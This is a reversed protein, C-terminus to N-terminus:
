GEVVEADVVRPADRVLLGVGLLLPLAQDDEAGFSQNLSLLALAIGVPGSVRAVFVAGKRLGLFIPGVKPVLPVLDWIPGTTVQLLKLAALRSGAASAGGAVGTWAPWLRKRLRQRTQEDLRDLTQVRGQPLLRWTLADLRTWADGAPLDIELKRGVRDVLRDLTGPLAVHEVPTHTRWWLRAVLLEALERAEATEPAEIGCTALVSQLEDRPCTALRAVVQEKKVPPEKKVASPPPGPPPSDASTAAM